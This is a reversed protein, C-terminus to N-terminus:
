IIFIKRGRTLSKHFKRKVPPYVICEESRSASGIIFSTYEPGTIFQEVFLGDALLNWGQYGKNIEKSKKWNM